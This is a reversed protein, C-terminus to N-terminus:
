KKKRKAKMPKAKHATMKGLRPAKLLMKAHKRTMGLDEPHPIGKPSTHAAHDDPTPALPNSIRPWSEGYSPM